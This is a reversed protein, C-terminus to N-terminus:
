KGIWFRPRKAAYLTSLSWLARYYSWVAAWMQPEVVNMNGDKFYYDMFGTTSLWGVVYKTAPVEEGLWVYVSNAGAYIDGM